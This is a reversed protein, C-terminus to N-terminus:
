LHMFTELYGVMIGYVNIKHLLYRDRPLAILFFYYKLRKMWIGHYLESTIYVMQVIWTFPECKELEKNM